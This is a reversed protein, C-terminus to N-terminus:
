MEIKTGCKSCKWYSEWLIFKGMDKRDFELETMEAGCNPCYVDTHLQGDPHVMGVV